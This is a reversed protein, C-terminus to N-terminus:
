CCKEVKVGMLEGMTHTPQKREYCPLDEELPLTQLFLGVLGQIKRVLSFSRLEIIGACVILNSCGGLYEAVARYGPSFCEPFKRISVCGKCSIKRDEGIKSLLFVARM